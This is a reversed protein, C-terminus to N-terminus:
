AGEKGAEDASRFDRGTYHLYVTDLSPRAVTVSEVLIGRSELVSLIGPVAHAGNEVRARVYRGDAITEEVHRLGDM